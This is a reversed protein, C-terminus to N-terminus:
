FQGKATGSEWCKEDNQRALRYVATPAFGGEGVGVEDWGRPLDRRPAFSIGSRRKSRLSTASDHWHAVRDQWSILSHTCGACWLPPLGTFQWMLGPVKRSGGNKWIDPSSLDHESHASQPHWAEYYLPAAVNASSFIELKRIHFYSIKSKPISM